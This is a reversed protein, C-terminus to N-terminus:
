GCHLNDLLLLTSSRGGFCAGARTRWVYLLLSRTVATISYWRRKFARDTTTDSSPVQQPSYSSEVGM